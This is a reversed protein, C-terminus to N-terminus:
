KWESEKGGNKNWIDKGEDQGTLETAKLKNELGVWEEQKRDWRGGRM